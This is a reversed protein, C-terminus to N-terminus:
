TVHGSVSAGPLLIVEGFGDIREDMASKELKWNGRTSWSYKIKRCSGEANRM